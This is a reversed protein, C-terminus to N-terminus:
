AKFLCPGTKKLGLHGLLVHFPFRHTSSLHILVDQGASHLLQATPYDVPLHHRPPLEFAAREVALWLDNVELHAMILCLLREAVRVESANQKSRPFGLSTKLKSAPTCPSFQCGVSCSAGPVGKFPGPNRHLFIVPYDSTLGRRSPLNGRRMIPGWLVGADVVLQPTLM